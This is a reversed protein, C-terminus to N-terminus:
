PVGLRLEQGSSCVSFLPQHPGLLLAYPFPSFDCSHPPRGSKEAKKCGLGSLETMGGEKQRDEPVLNFAGREGTGGGDWDPLILAVEEAAM